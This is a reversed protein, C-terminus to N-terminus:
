LNQLLQMAAHQGSLYAGHVTGAFRPHCHEGAFYVQQNIPQQLALNIAANHQPLPFSFSGYSYPDSGWRTVLLQQPQIPIDTFNDM